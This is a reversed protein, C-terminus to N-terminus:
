RAQSLERTLVRRRAFVGSVLLSLAPVIARWLVFSIFLWGSYDAPTWRLAALSVNVLTLAALAIVCSLCLTLDRERALRVAIYGILAPVLVRNVGILYIQVWWPISPGFNHRGFPLIIINGGIALFVGAMLLFALRLPQSAAQRFFLAAATRLTDCWSVRGEESMDGAIAAARDPTTFLRLFWETAVSEPM